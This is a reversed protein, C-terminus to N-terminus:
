NAAGRLVRRLQAPLEEPVVGLVRGRHVVAACNFLLQGARLPLGVIAIAAGDETAAISGLAAECADLLAHQHFLDDCTYASLGLEPSAVLSARGARGAPSARDDGRRQVGPRRCRCRLM